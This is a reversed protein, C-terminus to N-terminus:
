PVQKSRIVNVFERLNMLWERQTPHYSHHLPAPIILQLSKARMENTQNISVAPELTLLHKHQIRDAESLVQRWRDKCTSKVGLMSLTEAEVSPDHYETAGPFLFDPKNRNETIATRSHRLQHAVFIAECHNELALGVRSKRRNQVSLSYSIFAEVDDQFGQQLRAKILHRELTRFLEEEQEMWAMLASDPDSRPDIDPLTNRAYASFAKTPPFKLGFMRLMDQLHPEEDIPVEIGINELIYRTALAIEASGLSNRVTYGDMSIDGVGFLWAVQSEITSGAECILIMATGDTRRAFVLFDGPKALASAPNDPFYLRFESRTPHRERADYWTLVAASSVPETQNDALYLITAPIRSKGTSDGFIQKLQEVGNFEHQHSRSVSAEVASLRKAAIGAFYESLRGHKM